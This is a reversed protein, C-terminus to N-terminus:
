TCFEKDKLEHIAHAYSCKNGYEYHITKDYNKCM